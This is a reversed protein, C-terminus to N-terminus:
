REGLKEQLRAGVKAAIATCATKDIMDSALWLDIQSGVSEPTGGVVSGLQMSLGIGCRVMWPSRLPLLYTELDGTETVVIFGDQVRVQDDLAKLAKPLIVAPDSVTDVKPKNKEPRSADDGRPAFAAYAFIGLGIIVLAIILKDKM